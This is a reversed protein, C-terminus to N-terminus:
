KQVIMKFFVERDDIKDDFPLNQTFMVFLMVGASWIDCREDYNGTLVEPAVYAPTGCVRFLKIRKNNKFFRIALGFDVLKM